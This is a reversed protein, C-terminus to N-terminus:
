RLDRSRHTTRTCRPAVRDPVIEHACDCRAATGALRHHHYLGALRIVAHACRSRMGRTKGAAIICKGCHATRMADHQHVIWHRHDPNRIQQQTIRHRTIADPYQRPRTAAGADHHIADSARAHTQRPQRRSRAACQASQQQWWLRVIRDIKASSQGRRRFVDGRRRQACQRSIRINAHHQQIQRRHGAELCARSRQRAGPQVASLRHQRHHQWPRGSCLWARHQALHIAWIEVRDLIQKGSQAAHELVVVRRRDAFSRM